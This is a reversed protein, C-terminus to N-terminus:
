SERGIIKDTNTTTTATLLAAMVYQSDTYDQTGDDTRIVTWASCTRVLENTTADYHEVNLRLMHSEGPQGKAPITHRVAISYRETGDELYYDAGYNDQNVKNLTKAVSNYTIGITDGIM